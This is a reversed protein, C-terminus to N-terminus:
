KVLKKRSSKIVGLRATTRDINVKPGSIDAKYGGMSFASYTPKKDSFGVVKISNEPYRNKVVNFQRKNLTKVKGTNMDIEKGVNGKQFQFKTAYMTGRKTLRIKSFDRVNKQTKYVM